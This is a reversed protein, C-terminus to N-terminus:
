DLLALSVKVCELDLLTPHADKNPKDLVLRLVAKVKDLTLRAARFNPQLRAAAGGLFTRFALSSPSSLRYTSRPM